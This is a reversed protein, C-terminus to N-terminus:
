VEITKEKLFTTSPRRNFFDRVVHLRKGQTATKGAQRLVSFKEKILSSGITTRTYIILLPEASLFLIHDHAGKKTSGSSRRHGVHHTQLRRAYIASSINRLSRDIFSQDKQTKGNENERM